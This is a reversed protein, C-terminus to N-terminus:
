RRIECTPSGTKAGTDTASRPAPCNGGRGCAALLLVAIIYKMVFDVGTTNCAPPPVNERRPRGIPCPIWCGHGGVRQGPLGPVFLGDM